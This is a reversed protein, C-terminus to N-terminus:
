SRGGGGFRAVGGGREGSVGCRLVVDLVQLAGRLGGAAEEEAELAGSAAGGKVFEALAGLDVTAAHKIVVKFTKDMSVGKNNNNQTNYLDLTNHPTYVLLLLVFLYCPCVAMSLMVTLRAAGDPLDVVVRVAAEYPASGADGFAATPAYLSKAWDSAWGPAWKDQQALKTLVRRVM